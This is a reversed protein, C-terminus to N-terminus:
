EFAAGLRHHAVAPDCHEGQDHRGLQRRSCLSVACATTRAAAVRRAAGGPVLGLAGGRSGRSAAAFRCVGGPGQRQAAEGEQAGEGYRPAPPLTGSATPRPEFRCSRSTCWTPRRHRPSPQLARQTAKATVPVRAAWGSLPGAPRASEASIPGAARGTVGRTGGAGATLATRIQSKTGRSPVRVRPGGSLLRRSGGGVAGAAERHPCRQFRQSRGQCAAACHGTVGRTVGRHAVPAPPSHGVPGPRRRGRGPRPRHRVRRRRHVAVGGSRGRGGADGAPGDAGAGGPAGGRGPGAALTQELMATRVFSPCVANVRIGRPAYELAATRTLGLVGHKSAAYASAGALGVLGSASATNVIAGGSRQRLLQAVEYKLCLWTGTLNVALVRDWAAESLRHTFGGATVGANNHACDLRGYRAVTAAVMAEVDTAQSVDARVFAAEGGAERILRATEEGGDRDVDAVVVRAGARAFAVASARGIGAAGGTVLAVRGDLRGATSSVDATAVGEGGTGAGSGGGGATVLPPLGRGFQLLRRPHHSDAGPASRGAGWGRAPRFGDSRRLRTSAAGATDCTDCEPFGRRGGNVQEGQPPRTVRQPPADAAGPPRGVGQGPRPGPRRLAGRPWARVAAPTAVYGRGVKRADLRGDRAAVSLTARPVCFLRSAKGVSILGAALAGM